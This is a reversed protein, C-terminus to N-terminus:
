VEVELVIKDGADIRRVANVDVTSRIARLTAQALYEDRIADTLVRMFGRNGYFDGRLVVNGSNDVIVAINRARGSGKYGLVAVADSYVRENGYYDYVPTSSDLFGLNFKSAVKRLVKKLLPLNANKLGAKVRYIHSM